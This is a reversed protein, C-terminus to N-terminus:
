KFVKSIESWVIGVIAIFALLYMMTLVGGVFKSLGADIGFETYSRLVENGSVAWSIAFVLLLGGLGVGSKVLSGPDNLANITPLIIAAAACLIILGYATWLMLDIFM